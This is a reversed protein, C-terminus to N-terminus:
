LKVWKRSPFNVLHPKWEAHEPHAKIYDKVNFATGCSSGFRGWFNLKRALGSDVVKADIAASPYYPKPGTGDLYTHKCIGRSGLRDKDFYSDYHDALIFKGIKLNLKGYYMKNLLYDLRARRSGSSTSTDNFATDTTENVRLNADMASNMGYFVGNQTRQINFARQGLEFLMIENTNIDGFLWSCAYDGANDDRMIKVYEDLTNGYQMAQRIRCFFPSGFEPKYNTKSITTECGIIGSGCIFWDAVSSIYGPCTQMVFRNGRDPYMYIVINFFQATALDCHTNHGMIIDGRETADGTAIFASCHDKFSTDLSMYANWAILTDVSISVGKSKAGAHIGKIEEFFEPFKTKIIPKIETNSKHLYDTFNIQKVIFAFVSQVRALEKYLLKGHTFGRTYADGSIHLIRWGHTPTNRQTM